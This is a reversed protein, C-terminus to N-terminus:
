DPGAYNAIGTRCVACLANEPNTLWDQYLEMLESEPLEPAEFCDMLCTYKGDDEHNVTGYVDDYGITHALEHTLLFSMHATAISTSSAVLDMILIM